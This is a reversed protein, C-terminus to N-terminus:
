ARRRTAGRRHERRMGPDRLRRWRNRPATLGLKDHVVPPPNREARLALDEFYINYNTGNLVRQARIFPELAKWAWMIGYGYSGIVLDEDIIGHAVLKGLDDYFICLRNAQLRKDQPLGTVGEAADVGSRFDPTRVAALADVFEPQHRQGFIDKIVALSQSARTARVSRASTYMSVVLAVGSLFLSVITGATVGDEKFRRSLNPRHTKTV